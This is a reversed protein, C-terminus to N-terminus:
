TPMRCYQSTKESCLSNTNLFFRQGSLAGLIAAVLFTLVLLWLILAQPLRYRAREKEGGDGSDISLAECDESQQVREFLRRRDQFGFM